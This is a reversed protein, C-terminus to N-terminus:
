NVKTSTEEGVAVTPGSFCCGHSSEEKCLSWATRILQIITPAPEIQLWALTREGKKSREKRQNQGTHQQLLWNVTQFFVEYNTGRLARNQSTNTLNCDKDSRVAIKSVHLCQWQVSALILPFTQIQGGTCKKVLFRRASCINGKNSAHQLQCVCCM